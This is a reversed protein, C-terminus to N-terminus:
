RKAAPRTAAVAPRAPPKAQKIVGTSFGASAIADDSLPDIFRVSDIGGYSMLIYRSGATDPNKRELMLMEGRLWFNTFPMTENLTSLVVGRRPLSAPWEIFLSKWNQATSM